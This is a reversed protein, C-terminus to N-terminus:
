NRVQIKRTHEKRIYSERPSCNQLADFIYDRLNAIEIGYRKEKEEPPVTEIMNRLKTVTSKAREASIKCFREINEIENYVTSLEQDFSTDWPAVQKARMMHFTAKAGAYGCKCLDKDTLIKDSMKNNDTDYYRRIYKM